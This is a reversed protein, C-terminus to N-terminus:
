RPGKGVIYNTASLRGATLTYAIRIFKASPDIAELWIAADATINTASAVDTWNTGDNSKQLKVNAGAISAPTFTTTSAASGNDSLTVETGALANALSTALQFNDADVVIVFFDTATLPAPLTGDSAIGVKLGTTYGHGVVEFSSGAVDVDAEPCTEVGPTDVDVVAQVSYVSCGSINVADSYDTTVIETTEVQSEIINLLAM